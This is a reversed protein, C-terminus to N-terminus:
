RTTAAKRRRNYAWNRADTIRIRYTMLQTSVEYYRSASEVASFQEVAHLAAPRPVLLTMGLEDAEREMIPDYNRCGNEGTISIADHGLVIHAIEHMISSRQRNPAIADNVVIGSKTGDRITLASFLGSSATQLREIHHEPVFNIQSLLLIPVALHDALWYPCLPDHPALSLESRFELAYEEAEKKFGRRLKPSQRTKPM